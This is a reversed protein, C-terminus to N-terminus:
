VLGAKTAFWESVFIIDPHDQEGSYDNIQSRPVWVEVNGDYVLIASDTSHRVEVEIEVDSM